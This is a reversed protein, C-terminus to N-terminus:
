MKNDFRKGYNAMKKLAHECKIGQVQTKKFLIYIYINKVTIM